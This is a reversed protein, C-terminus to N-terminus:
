EVVMTIVQVCHPRHLSFQVVADMCHVMHSAALLSCHQATCFNRCQSAPHAFLHASADVCESRCCIMRMVAVRMSAAVAYLLVCSVTAAPRILLSKSCCCIRRSTTASHTNITLHSVIRETRMCVPPYNGEVRVVHACLPSWLLM